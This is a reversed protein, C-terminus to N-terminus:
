AAFSECHCLIAMFTRGPFIRPPKKVKAFPKTISNYGCRNEFCAFNQRCFVVKAIHVFINERLQCVPHPMNAKAGFLKRAIRFGRSVFREFRYLDTYLISYVQTKDAFLLDLACEGM